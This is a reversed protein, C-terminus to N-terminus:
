HWLDLRFLRQRCTNLEDLVEQSKRAKEARKIISKMARDLDYYEEDVITLSLRESVVQSRFSSGDAALRKCIELAPTVQLEIGPSKKLKWGSPNKPWPKFQAGLLCREVIERIITCDKPGVVVMLNMLRSWDRHLVYHEISEAIELLGIEGRSRKALLARKQIM